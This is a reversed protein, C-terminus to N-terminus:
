FRVHVGVAYGTADYKEIGIDLSVSETLFVELGVNYGFENETQKIDDSRIGSYVPGGYLAISNPLFLKNGVIDNVISVTAYVMYEEWQWDAFAHDTEAFTYQGGINVRIKNEFLTPDPIEHDLVNVHVGAGYELENSADPFQVGRLKSESEGITGYVMLWSSLNFGVYVMSKRQELTFSLPSGDLDIERDRDAGYVGVSWRSLASDNILYDRGANSNGVPVALSVSLQGFLLLTVVVLGLKRTNM